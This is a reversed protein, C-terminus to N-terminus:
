ARDQRMQSPSKDFTRRFARSFSAADEFGLHLHHFLPGGGPGGFDFFKGDQCPFVIFPLGAHGYVKYEMDRGLHTSYHKRYEIKM